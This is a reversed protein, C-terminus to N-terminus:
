FLPNTKYIARSDVMSAIEWLDPITSHYPVEMKAIWAARSRM